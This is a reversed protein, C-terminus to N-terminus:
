LLAFPTWHYDCLHSVSLVIVKREHQNLQRKTLPILLWKKLVEKRYENIRLFEEYHWM